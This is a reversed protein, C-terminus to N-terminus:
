APKLWKAGVITIVLLIASYALSMSAVRGWDGNEWQGFVVVSLVRTKSTFLFISSALERISLILIMLGASIISTRLLPLTVWALARLTSAGSVRAAAELDGDIQQLSSAIGGYGQPTFRAIYALVLVALTGYIPLPVLSWTWFFALGMVLAPIAIPATALMELLFRGRLNTRTVVYALALYIVLGVVAATIGATFSNVFGETFQKSTIADFFDATDFSTPDFIQWFDDLYRAGSFAAKVLALIPLLVALVLYLMVGAFAVWRWKGLEVVSPKFGKGTVTTYSRRRLFVRQLAIVVVLIVLLTIGVASAQNVNAPANTMLSYVYSPLTQIGSGAGLIVPIPFDELILAFTLIGAAILAPRVIPLTVNMLVQRQKGGHVLAAEELEPNMLRLAGYVFVFAYPSYYLTQVFIIGPLTYVNLTFDWGLTQFLLNVYGSQPSAILSWAMAGVFASIFLPIIGAVQVIGRGPVNTRAALWAMATGVLMALAGASVSIVLSNLAANLGRETFIASFNDLTFAGLPDGPRPPSDTIATVLLVVIPVVILVIMVLLLVLYPIRKGLRGALGARDPYPQTSIPATADPTSTEMGRRTQLTSM